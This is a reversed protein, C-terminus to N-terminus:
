NISFQARHDDMEINDYVIGCNKYTSSIEYM